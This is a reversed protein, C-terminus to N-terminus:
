AFESYLLPLFLKMRGLVFARDLAKKNVLEEFTSTLLNSIHIKAKKQKKFFTMTESILQYSLLLNTYLEAFNGLFGDRMNEPLLRFHEDSFMESGSLGTTGLKGIASIMEAFEDSTTMAVKKIISREMLEVYKAAGYFNMLFIHSTGHVFEHVAVMKRQTRRHVDDDIFLSEDVFISLLFLNNVKDYAIAARGKVGDPSSTQRAIIVWRGLGIAKLRLSASARYITPTATLEQVKLSQLIPRLLTFAGETTQEAM